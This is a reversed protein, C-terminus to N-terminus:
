QKTSCSQLPTRCSNSTDQTMDQVMDQAEVRGTGSQQGGV